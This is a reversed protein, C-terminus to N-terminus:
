KKIACPIQPNSKLGSHKPTRELQLQTVNPPFLLSGAWDLAVEIKRVLTPMKSLYVARWFIWAAFGSLRMGLVEAVANHRGIAAM